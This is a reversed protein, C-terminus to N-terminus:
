KCIYGLARRGLRDEALRGMDSLPITGIIPIACRGMQKSFQISMQVVRVRDGGTQIVTGVV